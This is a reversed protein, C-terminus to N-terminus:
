ALAGDDASPDAHYGSSRHRSADQRHAEEFIMSCLTDTVADGEVAGPLAGTIADLDDVHARSGGKGPAIRVQHPSVNQLEGSVALRYVGDTALVWTRVASLREEAERSFTSLGVKWGM